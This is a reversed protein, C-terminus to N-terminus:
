IKNDHRATRMLNTIANLAQREEALIELIDDLAMIGVVEQRDNVVVLRRIQSSGMRGMAGELPANETICIPNPTMVTRVETQHPSVGKAFARVVLDRDTVIGVPKSDEVVVLAGVNLDAMRKTAVEVTDTPHIIVVNRVCFRGVSM